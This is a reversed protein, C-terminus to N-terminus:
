SSKPSNAEAKVINNSASEDLVPAEVQVEKTIESRKGKSCKWVGPPCADNSVHFPNFKAVLGGDQQSTKLARKLMQKLMRKKRDVWM